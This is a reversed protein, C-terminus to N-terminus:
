DARPLWVRITSPGRNASLAVPVLRLKIKRTDDGDLVKVEIDLFVVGKLGFSQFSADDVIEEISSTSPSVRVARLDRVHPNDCSEACYVLPGRM